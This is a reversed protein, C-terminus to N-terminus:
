NYNYWSTNSIYLYPEYYMVGSPVHADCIVVGRNKSISYTRIRELLEWWSKNGIDEKNMIEAQGFHIAEIGVNIYRRAMYYFWMQTELKTIDPVAPHSSGVVGGWSTKYTSNDPYNDYTMQSFNFKRVVDDPDSAYSLGFEDYVWEPIWFTNVTESVYEFIASQCIVQSDNAKIDSVNLQVKLFFNDHNTQGWGNEWWGGIRGIFKAEINDIMSINRQRETESLLLSGEINSQGQMTIARDLYNDLVERSISGNFNYNQAYTMFSFLTMCITLITVKKM